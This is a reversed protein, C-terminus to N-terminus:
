GDDPPSDDVRGAAGSGRTSNWASGSNDRSFPEPPPTRGELEADIVDLKWRARAIELRLDAVDHGTEVQGAHELVESYTKSADTYRAKIAADDAITVRPELELILDSMEQIEAMTHTKADATHVRRATKKRSSRISALALIGTIVALLVFMEGSGFFGSQAVELPRVQDGFEVLTAAVEDFSGVVDGRDFDNLAAVLNPYPYETTAGGADDALVLVLTHPGGDVALRELSSQALVAAASLAPDQQVDLARDSYAFAFDPGWREALAQMDGVALTGTEDWWGQDLVGTLLEEQFGETQAAASAVNVLLPTFAFLVVVVLRRVSRRGFRSM